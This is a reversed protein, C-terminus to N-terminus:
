RGSGGSVVTAPSSSVTPTGGSSTKTGTTSGSSSSSTSGSTSSTSSGTSTARDTSSASTGTTTPSVSSTTSSGATTGPLATTDPTTAPTTAPTSTTGAPAPVTRATAASTTGPIERSVVLGVLAAAGVSLVTVSRSARRALDDGRTRRAEARRSAAPRPEHGPRARGPGTSWHQRDPTMAHM